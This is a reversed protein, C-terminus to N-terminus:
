VHGTVLLMSLGDSHLHPLIWPTVPALALLCTNSAGLELPHLQAGCRDTPVNQSDSSDSRKATVWLLFINQLLCISGTGTFTLM